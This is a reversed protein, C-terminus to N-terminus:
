PGDDGGSDDVDDGVGVGAFRLGVSGGVSRAPTRTPTEEVHCSLVLGGLQTVKEFMIRSSSSALINFSKKGLGNNLGTGMLCADRSRSPIVSRLMCRSLDVFIPNHSLFSELLFLQQLWRALIEM